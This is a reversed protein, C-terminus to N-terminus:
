GVILGRIGAGIMSLVIQGAEILGEKLEELFEDGLQASKIKGALEWNGIAAKLATEAVEVDDGAARRLQCEVLLSAAEIVQEQGEPSILQFKDLTVFGKVRDVVSDTLRSKLVDWDM